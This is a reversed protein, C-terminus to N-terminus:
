IPLIMHEVKSGKESLIREQDSKPALKSGHEEWVDMLMEDLMSKNLTDLNANIEDNIKTRNQAWRTVWTPVMNADSNSWSSAWFGGLGGFYARFSKGAWRQAAINADIKSTKGNIHSSNYMSMNRFLVCKRHLRPPLECSHRVNSVIKMLKWSDQMVEVYAWIIELSTRYYSIFKYDENAKM